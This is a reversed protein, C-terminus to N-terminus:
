ALKFDIERNIQRYKVTTSFLIIFILIHAVYMELDLIVRSLIYKFPCVLHIGVCSTFLRVLSLHNGGTGMEWKLTTM